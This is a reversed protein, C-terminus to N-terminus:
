CSRGEIQLLECLELIIEASPLCKGAEWKAVARDTIGFHEAVQAQTLGAAKRAASIKGATERMDM